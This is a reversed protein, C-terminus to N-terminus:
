VPVVEHGKERATALAAERAEEYDDCNVLRDRDTRYLRGNDALYVVGKRRATVVADWRDDFREMPAGDRDPEYRNILTGLAALALGSMAADAGTEPADPEDTSDQPTVKVGGQLKTETGM